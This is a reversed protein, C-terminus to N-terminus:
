CATAVQRMIAEVQTRDTGKDNLGPARMHVESVGTEIVFSAVNNARIGGSGLITIRGKSYEVLEKIRGRQAVSIHGGTTLVREYGLRILKKLARFQDPVMDFARHFTLPHAGAAKRLKLAGGEDIRGDPLLAGVVFGVQKRKGESLRSFHRITACCKAIEDRSFVFSGARPRILVQLGGEPAFKLAEEFTAITPTLGGCSLERCLEVRQAGALAATRVSPADEVCIEILTM